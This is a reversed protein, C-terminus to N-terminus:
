KQAEEVKVFDANSDNIGHREWDKLSYSSAKTTMGVLELIFEGLGLGITDIVYYNPGSLNTLWEKEPPHVEKLKAYYKQEEKVRYGRSGIIVEILEKKNQVIFDGTPSCAVTEWYRYTAGITSFYAGRNM